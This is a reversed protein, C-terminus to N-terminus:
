QHIRLNKLVALHYHITILISPTMGGRARFAMGNSAGNQRGM